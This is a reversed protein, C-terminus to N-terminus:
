GREQALMMYLARTEPGERGVWSVGIKIPLLFYRNSVNTTTASGDGDLDRPLGLAVADPSADTEDVFIKVTGTGGIDPIQFTFGQYTVAIQGFPAGRITEGIQRLTHIVSVDERVRSYAKANSVFGSALGLFGIVILAAGTLCEVLSFGSLRELNWRCGHM